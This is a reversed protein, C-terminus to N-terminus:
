RIEKITQSRVNTDEVQLYHVVQGVIFDCQEMMWDIEIFHIVVVLPDFMVVMLIIGSGLDIQLLVVALISVQLVSLHKM